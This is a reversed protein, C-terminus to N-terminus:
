LWKNPGSNPIKMWRNKYAAEPNKFKSDKIQVLYYKIFLLWSITFAMLKQLYSKKSYLVDTKYRFVANSFKIKYDFSGWGMDILRYGNEYCWEIQKVFMQRGLSFKYFARDFSIIASCLTNKYHYNLSIAIPNDKEYLVFLSANKAIIQDFATDTYEKWRNLATHKSTRGKFRDLIFGELKDLLFQYTVKDIQGHYIDFRITYSRDLRQMDQRLNKFVKKGLQNRLYERASSSKSLDMAFGTRYSKSYCSYSDILNAENVSLYPPICNVIAINKNSGIDKESDSLQYYDPPIGSIKKYYEPIFRKEFFDFHFNYRQINPIAM